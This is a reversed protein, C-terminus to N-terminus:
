AVAGAGTRCSALAISQRYRRVRAMGPSGTPLGSGTGAWDPGGALARVGLVYGNILVLAAGTGYGGVWGSSRQGLVVARELPAARAEPAGGAGIAPAGAWGQLVGVGTRAEGRAQVVIAGVQRCGRQDSRVLQTAIAAGRLARGVWRTPDPMPPFWVPLFGERVGLVAGLVRDAQAAAPLAALWPPGQGASHM